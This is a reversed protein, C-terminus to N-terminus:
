DVEEPPAVDAGFQLWRWAFEAEFRYAVRVCGHGRRM